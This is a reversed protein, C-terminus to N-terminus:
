EHVRWTVLSEAVYNVLMGAGIGTVSAVLLWLDVGGVSFPTPLRRYVLSFVVLQVTIGGLRVLNSTLLRRVLAVVGARGEAAFTFRENLLFMVVVAAEIGLAKAVEPALGPTGVLGALASAVGFGTSALLVANDCVAGVVGVSVFKGFRVASVLARFRARVGGRDDGDATTVHTEDEDGTNGDVADTGVGPTAAERGADAEPV